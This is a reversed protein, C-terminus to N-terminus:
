ETLIVDAPNVMSIGWVEEDEEKGDKAGADGLKRGVVVMTKAEGRQGIIGRGGESERCSVMFGGCFM